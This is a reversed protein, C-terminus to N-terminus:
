AMALSAVRPELWSAFATQYIVSEMPTPTGDYDVKWLTYICRALVGSGVDDIM